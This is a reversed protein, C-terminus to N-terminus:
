PVLVIFFMVITLGRRRGDVLPVGLCGLALAPALGRRCVLFRCRTGLFEGHTQQWPPSTYLVRPPGGPVVRVSRM